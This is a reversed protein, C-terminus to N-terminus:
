LHQELWADQINPGANEHGDVKEFVVAQIQHSYKPNQTAARFNFFMSKSM